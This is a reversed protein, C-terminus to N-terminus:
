FVNNFLKGECASFIDPYDDILKQAPKQKIEEISVFNAFVKRFCSRHTRSKSQFLQDM